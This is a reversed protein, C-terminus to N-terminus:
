VTKKKKEKGKDTDNDKKEKGKKDNEEIDNDKKEKGKKEKEEKEEYHDNVRELFLCVFVVFVSSWEIYSLVHGFALVSYLITCFKRMTTIISCMLSGFQHITFFIFIQGFASALSFEIVYLLIGPKNIVMNVVKATEGIYLDYTLFVLSYCIISWLNTYFMHHIPSPKPKDKHGEKFSDQLSATIGDCFLSGLVLVYGFYDDEGGKKSGHSVLFVSIGLTITAVLGIKRFSYQEGGIFFSMIIIPIPKCSKALVQTPYSIFHLAANSCYMAIVQSISQSRFDNFPLGPIFLQNKNYLLVILAILSNVTVQCLLLFFLFILMM